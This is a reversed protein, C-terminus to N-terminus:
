VIRLLSFERWLINSGHPSITLNSCDQNPMGQEYGLIILYIVIIVDSDCKELHYFFFFITYLFVCLHHSSRRSWILKM